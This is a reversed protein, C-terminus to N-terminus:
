RRNKNKLEGILKKQKIVKSKLKEIEEKETLEHCEKCVYEPDILYIYFILDEEKFKSGCIGCQAYVYEASNNVKKLQGFTTKLPYKKLFDKLNDKNYM